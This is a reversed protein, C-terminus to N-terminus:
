LKEEEIEYFAKTRICESCGICEGDRFYFDDAESGCLPCILAKPEQGDPYGTREMNEIIPHDRMM